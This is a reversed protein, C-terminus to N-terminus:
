DLDVLSISPASTVAYFNLSVEDREAGDFGIRAGSQLYLLSLETDGWQQGELGHLANKVDHAWDEASTTVKSLGRVRVQLGETNDLAVPYWTIVIAKDPAAPMKSMFVQGSTAVSVAVLHAKVGDRLDKATSM